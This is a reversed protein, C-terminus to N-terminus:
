EAGGHIRVLERLIFAATDLADAKEDTHYDAAAHLQGHPYSRVRFENYEADRYTKVIHGAHGRTEILRLPM